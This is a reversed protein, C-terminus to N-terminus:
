IATDAQQSIGEPLAELFQWGYRKTRVRPDLIVVKGRDKTSRVLRGFGQRFRLIAEPLSHEFFGNGGRKEIEHIKAQTLPHGPQAFPFRPIILLTLAEGPVDIGEWMSGTGVLVSTPDNQKKLFLETLPADGQVLLDIDAAELNPRIAGVLEELYRWSTCLVLARGGNELIHHLVRQVSERAFGRPDSSPDPLAEELVLEVQRDYRFPSGLRLIEADDIGLRRRLVSFDQSGDLTASALVACRGKGFVFKGLAASVDLPASHLEVGRPGREVWRVQNETQPKSLTALTVGLTTVGRARATMEVRMSLDEIETADTTLSEGLETLFHALSPDLTRDGLTRASDRDQHLFGALEAFFEDAGTRVQSVLARSADSGFRDLLSKRKSKPQLRKLHWEVTGRTERLGLSQTAIRELHHAEDFVVVCHDPLYNTGAMRLAVDAMYLSHNVILIDASDMRRRSRQYHCPKFHRCARNLCNGHEAQVEQWVNSDIRNPLGMRTGDVTDLSWEVISQLQEESAPDPFLVGRERRALDLRRLCLYNNRGVATVASWKEPLVSQLFPVDKLELQQQLAITGTSIVVPGQERHSSARLVAPLLYAFSKGVGTGAEALLHRGETLCREMALAFELQEPREEYDPLLGAIVGDLGLLDAVRSSM